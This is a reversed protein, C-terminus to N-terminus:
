PLFFVLCHFRYLTLTFTLAGRNLNSTGYRGNELGRISLHPTNTNANDTLVRPLRRHPYRAAACVHGARMFGMQALGYNNGTNDTAVRPGEKPIILHPDSNKKKM